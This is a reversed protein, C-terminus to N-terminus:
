DGSLLVVDESLVHWREFQQKLSCNGREAKQSKLFAFECDYPVRMYYIFLDKTLCLVTMLYPFLLIKRTIPEM